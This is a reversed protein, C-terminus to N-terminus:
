GGYIEGLSMERGDAGFAAGVDAWGTRPSFARRTQRDLLEGRGLHLLASMAAAFDDGDYFSLPGTAYRDGRGDVGCTVAYRKTESM